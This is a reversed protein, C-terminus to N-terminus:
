KKKYLLLWHTVRAFANQVQFSMFHSCLSPDYDKMRKHTAWRSSKWWIFMWLLLRKLVQYCVIACCIERSSIFPKVLNGSKLYVKPNTHWLPTNRIRNKCLPKECKAYLKCICICVYYSVAKQAQCGAVLYIPM